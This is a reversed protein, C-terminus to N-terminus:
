VHVAGANRWRARTHMTISMVELHYRGEFHRLGVVRARADLIDNLLADDKYM